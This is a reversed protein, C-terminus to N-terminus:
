SKNCGCCGALDALLQNTAKTRSPCVRLPVDCDSLM